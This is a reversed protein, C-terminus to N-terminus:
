EKGRSGCPDGPMGSGFTVARLWDPDKVQWKAAWEGKWRPAPLEFPEAAVEEEEASAAARGQRRRGGGGGGGAPTEPVITLTRAASCDAGHEILWLAALEFGTRGLVRFRSM